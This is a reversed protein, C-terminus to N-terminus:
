LGAPARITAAYMAEYADELGRVLRATDFLPAYDRAALLRARVERNRARDTALSIATACYADDDEVVLDPLDANRLLSAAVRTAFTSGPSTVLPVGSWLLDAGTSHANYWDLTDLGLDACALRALHAAKDLPKGFVLRKPDIGHRAAERSMNEIAIPSPRLLWLLSGPVAGLIRMWLAFSRRDIRVPSGFNCFVYGDEPLGHEARQAPPASFAASGENLQYCDAVRIVRESFQPEVEPPSAIADGVYYDIYPAGTTAPFGLFHAQVPACRRAPIGLRNGATHGMLDILLDVGADAIAAAAADDSTKAIDIFRDVGDVVRKRYVSGDDPGTSYAYVEFRERDHLAFAGALMQGMPHSRFDHSLYAIRLRRGERTRTAACARRAHPKPAHFAGIAKAHEADLKLCMATLPAVFPLWAGPPETAIRRRLEGGVREAGDWDCAELLAHLLAEPAQALAPDAAVAAEFHSIAAAIKGNFRLVHAYNYHAPACRPDLQLARELLRVAEAGRDQELLQVALNTAAAADDPHDRVARRLVAEAEQQLGADRLDLAQQVLREATPAPRLALKLMRWLM